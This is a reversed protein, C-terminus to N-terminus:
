PTPALRFVQGTTGATESSGLGMVYLEGDADQGFGTVYMRAENNNAAIIESLVGDPELSFLRGLPFDSDVTLDGFIYAGVLDTLQDGRYM